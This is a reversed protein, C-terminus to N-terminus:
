KGSSGLKGDGRSSPISKLKEFSISKTKVQPSLELGLQCIAKKYPYKMVDTNTLFETEITVTDVEKTIELPFSNGNYIVVFMEGRYNADIKGSLTIMSNIGTSGRENNISIRYKPSVAVAIGTPIMRNQHPPIIIKEEAFSAWVDYWGAQCDSKEPTRASDSTKAFYVFDEDEFWDKVPRNVKEIENLKLTVEDFGHPKFVALRVGYFNKERKIIIERVVAKEKTKSIMVTENVEYRPKDM